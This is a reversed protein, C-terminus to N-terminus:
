NRNRITLITDKSFDFTERKRMRQVPLLQCRASLILAVSVAIVFSANIAIIVFLSGREIDIYCSSIYVTFRVVSFCNRTHFFLYSVCAFVDSARDARYNCM